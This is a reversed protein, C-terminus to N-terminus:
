VDVEEFVMLEEEKKLVVEMKYLNLVVNLIWSFSYCVSHAITVLSKGHVLCHIDFCLQLKIQISVLYQRCFNIFNSSFSLSLNSCLCVLLVYTSWYFM